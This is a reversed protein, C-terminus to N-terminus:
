RTEPTLNQRSIGLEPEGQVVQPMSDKEFDYGDESKQKGQESRKLEAALRLLEKKGEMELTLTERKQVELEISNRLELDKKASEKEIELQMKQQELQAMAQLKQQEMQMEQQMMAQQQEQAQRARKEIRYRLQVEAKEVSENMLRKVMMADEFGLSGQQLAGQIDMMLQEKEHQDPLLEIDVNFMIEGIEISKVVRIEPDSLLEKIEDTEVGAQIAMQQGYAAREAIEKIMDLYSNQLNRIASKHAQVAMQQVGVLARKDPQSADVADNIGIIEKCKALENNYLAVLNMLGADISSASPTIGPGQSPIMSGDEAMSSFMGFGLQRKIEIADLPKLGEIGMGRLAPIVKSIDMDFGPPSAIAVWHQIKISYIIMAEIHPIMEEVVSKNEMNLMGPARLVYSFCPKEDFKGGRIKRIVNPKLKWELMHDTGVLWEGKYIRNIVGKHVKKKAEPDKPPEYDFSRKKFSIDGYNLSKEVFAMTDGQMVEFCFVEIMVSELCSRQFDTLQFYNERGFGLGNGSNVRKGVNLRAIRLLEDHGLMPARKRLEGITIYEIHGIHQMDSFDENECYSTILKLPDIYKICTNYNEDLSTYVCALKIDVLDSVAKREIQTFNNRRFSKNILKEIAIQEIIKANTSLLAETEEEDKPAGELGKFEMNAPVLGEAKMQKLMNSMHMKGLLVNKKEELKSHSFSDYLVAKPKYPHSYINEKMIRLLKPAPTNTNYQLTIYETESPLARSKYPEVSHLGEAFKRNVIIRDNQNFKFSYSRSDASSWIAKAYRCGWAPDKKEEPSVFPSPFNGLNDQM